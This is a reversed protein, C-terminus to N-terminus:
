VSSQASVSSAGTTADAGGRDRHVGGAVGRKRRARQGSGLLQGRLAQHGLGRDAEVGGGGVVIAQLVRDQELGGAFVVIRHLDLQDAGARLGAGGVGVNIRGRRDLELAHDCGAPIWRSSRLSSRR